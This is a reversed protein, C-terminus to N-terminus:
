TPVIKVDPLINLSWALIKERHERRTKNQPWGESGVRSSVVNRGPKPIVKGGKNRSSERSNQDTFTARRM